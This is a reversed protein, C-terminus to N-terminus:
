TQSVATSISYLTKAAAMYVGDAVDVTLV